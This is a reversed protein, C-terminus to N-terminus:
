STTSWRAWPMSTRAHKGARARSSSPRWTRPIAPIPPALPALGFDTVKVRGQTDLFVNAPKLAGHYVGKAHAAELAELVQRAIEWSQRLDPPSAKLRAALTNGEALETVLCVVKDASLMEIFSAISPHRVRALLSANRRMKELAEPDKPRPAMKLAYAKGNDTGRFVQAWSGKGLPQGIDYKGIRRADSM